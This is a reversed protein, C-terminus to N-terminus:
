FSFHELDCNIIEVNKSDFLDTWTEAQACDHVPHSVSPLPPCISRVAVRQSPHYQAWRSVNAWLQYDPLSGWFAKCETQSTDELLWAFPPFYVQGLTRLGINLRAEKGFLFSGVTPGALRAHNGRMLALRIKLDDPVTVSDARELIESAIPEHMHRLNQNIAFMGILISRIVSGPEIEGDPIRMREPLHLRWTRAWLGRAHEAFYKYSSDYLGQLSNCEGCLGYVYLGGTKGNGPRAGENNITLRQLSVAGTNGSCQPPVHARTMKRFEGCLGCTGKGKGKRLGLVFNNDAGSVTEGIMSAATHRKFDRMFM